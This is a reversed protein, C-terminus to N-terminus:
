GGGFDWLLLRLMVYVDIRGIVVYVMELVVCGYLRIGRVKKVFVMM